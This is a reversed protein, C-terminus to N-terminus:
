RAYQKLVMAVCNGDPGITNSLAVRAGHQLAWVCNVANFSGCTAFPETLLAKTSQQIKVTSGFIKKIAKEEEGMLNPCNTTSVYEVQQPRVGAEALAFRVAREIAEDAHSHGDAAGYGAVECYSKGGRKEVSGLREMVLIAAGEALSLGDLCKMKSLTEALTRSVKEVGGSLIVDACYDQLLDYAYAMANSGSVMGSTITANVGKIGCIVSAQAAAINAATNRFTTSNVFLPNELILKRHYQLDSELSGFATGLVIGVQEQGVKLLDLHADEIALKAALVAYRSVNDMQRLSKAQEQSLGELLKNTVLEELSLLTTAYAEGRLSNFYGQVGISEPSVLGIGTIMIPQREARMREKKKHDLLKSFVIAANQGGFGSSVSLAVDVKVKRGSGRILNLNHAPDTEQHNLTGPVFGDRMALLCVVAEIAGAAGMAHGTLPKTSSIPIESSSKQFVKEIAKCEMADSYSTGVGHANIYNIEEPRLAAELLADAIAGALGGGDRDPATIHAADGRFGYGVVESYVTAKRDLAHELDELILVAAGEGIIMGNRQRDFPRCKTPSLIRLAHFGSFIFQNLTDVGGALMVDARGRKILSAAYGIAATGSACAMTITSRPGKLGFERALHWSPTFLACEWLQRPNIENMKGSILATHIKETTILGSHITGLVVGIRQLNEDQSTRLGADAVAERGAALILRSAKDLTSSNDAAFDPIEGATQCKYMSVDLTEIKKVGSIGAKVASWFNERGVGNAAVIGIGTVVVRHERM